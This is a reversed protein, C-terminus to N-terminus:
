RRAWESSAAAPVGPDLARPGIAPCVILSMVREALYRGDGLPVRVSYSEGELHVSTFIFWEGAEYKLAIGPLAEIDKM